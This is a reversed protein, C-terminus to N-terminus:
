RASRDIPSLLINFDRVEVTNPDIQSKLDMLTHKIFNPAGANHAYLNM